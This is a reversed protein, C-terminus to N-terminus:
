FSGIMVESVSDEGALDLDKVVRRWATSSEMTAYLTCRSEGFLRMKPKPISGIGAPDLEM